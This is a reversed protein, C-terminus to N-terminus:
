VTMITELMSRISADSSSSTSPEVAVIPDVFEETTPDGSTSPRSAGISSEVRSRKSRAKM